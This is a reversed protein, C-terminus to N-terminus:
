KKVEFLMRALVLFFVILSAVLALWSWAFGVTFSLVIFLAFGTLWIVVTYIGFRAAAAPDQSFRDEAAYVRQQELAWPKTRNTQTVGLWTFGVIAVLVLAVGAILTGIQGEGFFVGTLGLGLAMVLSTLGFGAARGSPLPYHQSTEQRLSYDVLAGVAIALVAPSVWWPLDVAHVAVLAVLVGAAAILLSLVVAVLVFAPRPRMRNRTALDAAANGTLTSTGDLSAVLARIDGLERVATSAAATADMGGAELEDARAALSGRLEEKLDQIDPTLDIDAFADDLHRHIAPNM